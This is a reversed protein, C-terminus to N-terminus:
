QDRVSVKERQSGSADLLKKKGQTWFCIAFLHPITWTTSNVHPVSKFINTPAGEKVKGQARPKAKGTIDNRRGRLM